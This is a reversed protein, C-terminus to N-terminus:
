DLTVIRHEISEGLELIGFTKGGDRNCTPSGPNFLLQGEDWAVYPIHSHGFLVIDAEPFLRKVRTEIRNPPGWGHALGLKREGVTLLRHEPLFCRVEDDDQNGFVAALPKLQQFIRLTPLDNFDGLHIILDVSELHRLLAEPLSSEHPMHTDAVVGITTVANRTNM